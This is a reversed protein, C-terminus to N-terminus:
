LQRFSRIHVLFAGESDDEDERRYQYQTNPELGKGAFMPRPPADGIVLFPDKRKGYMEDKEEHAEESKYKRDSKKTKRSFLGM